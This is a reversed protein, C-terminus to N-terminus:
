RQRSRSWTPPSRHRGSSRRQRTGPRHRSAACATAGPRVSVRAAALAAEGAAPRRRDQRQDVGADAPQPSGASRRSVGGPRCGQRGQHQGPPRRPWHGPGARHDPGPARGRHPPGAKCGDGSASAASGPAGGPRRHLDLGARWSAMFKGDEFEFQRPGLNMPVGTRALAQKIWYSDYVGHSLIIDVDLGWKLVRVATMTDNSGYAHLLVPFERRFLGRLSDLRVNFKPKDGKGTEFRVWAQHYDRAEKLVVKLMYHLGLRGSGLDGARRAPNGGRAHLAIKLAGPFRILREEFSAGATKALTGLGGISSGSGPIMLVTTVGAGAADKLEPSEIRVLDLTRLEFNHPLVMDNIDRGSMGVHCHLEVFGPLLFQDELQVTVTDKPTSLDQGVARIKGGQVLVEGNLIPKGEMTLVKAARLLLPQEQAAAPAGLVILLLPLSLRGAM